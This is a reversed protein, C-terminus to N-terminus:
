YPLVTIDFTIDEEVYPASAPGAIGIYHITHKGCSLPSVMLYVGDAVAPYVTLGGPICPEGFFGALVNDKEATTYSFPPSVVDYATTIPNDLGAVAVGDITCSTVTVVSWQGVAEAALEAGTLSTFDSVPCATNDEYVSLITFFLPTEAPITVKNTKMTIGGTAPIDVANLFWVRSAPGTCVGSWGASEVKNTSLGLTWHWYKASWEEFSYGYPLSSPPLVEAAPSSAAIALLM